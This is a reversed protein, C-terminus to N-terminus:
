VVRGRISCSGVVFVFHAGPPHSAFSPSAVLGELFVVAAEPHPEVEDDDEARDHELDASVVHKLPTLTITSVKSKSEVANNHQM